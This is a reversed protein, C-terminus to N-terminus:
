HGFNAFQWVLKYLGYVRSLSFTSDLLFCCLVVPSGRGEIDIGRVCMFRPHVRYQCDLGSGSVWLRRVNHFCFLLLM